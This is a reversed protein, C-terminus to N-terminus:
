KQTLYKIQQKNQEEFSVQYFWQQASTCTQTNEPKTSIIYCQHTPNRSLDTEWLLPKLKSSVKIVFISNLSKM